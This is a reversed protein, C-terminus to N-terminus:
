KKGNFNSDTFPMTIDCAQVIIAVILVFATLFDFGLFLNYEISIM